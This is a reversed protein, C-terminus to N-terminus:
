CEAIALFSDALAFREVKRIGVLSVFAKITTPQEGKQATRTISGQKDYGVKASCLSMNTHIDRGVREIIHLQFLALFIHNIQKRPVM